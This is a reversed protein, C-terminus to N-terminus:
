LFEVLVYLCSIGLFLFLLFINTAHPTVVLSLCWSSVLGVSTWVGQLGHEAVPSAVMIVLRAGRHLTAGARQLWLFATHLSSYGACGFSFLYICLYFIINLMMECNKM